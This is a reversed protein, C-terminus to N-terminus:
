LAVLPRCRRRDDPELRAPAHHDHVGSVGAAQPDVLLGHETEIPRLRGGVASETEILEVEHGARALRRGCVLGALGGGVVLISAM